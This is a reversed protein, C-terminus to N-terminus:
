PLLGAEPLRAGKTWNYFGYVANVLFAAWMVLMIPGDSSGAVTRVFWMAVSFLNLSIYAIWQERYRKVMLLTAVVSLINTAADIYPTNQQGFLVLAKGLLCTAIITVMTVMLFQSRSLKRMTVIGSDDTHGRWMLYGVITMPLYFLLYEAVEGYLQNRFAIWAYGATNFLGIPYNIISGKAALVVCLVGSLFVAFGFLTDRTIITVLIAIACFLVLWTIEFLSWTARKGLKM